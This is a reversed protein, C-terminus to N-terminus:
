DTNRSNPRVFEPKRIFNQKFKYRLNSRFMIVWQNNQSDKKPFYNGRIEMTGFILSENRVRMGGSVVPVLRPDWGVSKFYTASGGVFPAFKFFLVTRPAYFIWEAGLTARTHGPMWANNYAPLAYQSEMYLPEDLSSNIQKAANAMVYLREKWRNLNHLKGFYEGSGLLTIDQAESKYISSGAAVEFNFFRESKTVFNLNWNLGLYPRQVSDKQTYGATLSADFGQPLDENRGFGYIYQTKYFTQRYVEFSGLVAFLDAFSYNYGKYQLPKREFDQKIIRIGTFYRLARAEQSTGVLWWSPNWGLWADKLTYMYKRDMEYVSDTNFMNATTHWEVNASYTLRSKPNVLPRVMRIFSVREERLGSNFAPNFDLYGVNVDIFSGLVNRKLYAAGFGFNEHRQRDFLTQFQLRDGYGLFNDEKLEIRARKYSNCDFEGGLSLVDKVFVTVDVSDPHGRVPTVVIRADRLYPLDRLYRENNAFLFPSVRDNEKFFLQNRIAFSRTKVHMNDALRTLDNKLGKSTDSISVGFDLGVVEINRILRNRYNQFAKDVREMDEAKPESSNTLLSQALEGILGKKSSLMSDMRRASSDIQATVVVPVLLLVAAITHTFRLSM